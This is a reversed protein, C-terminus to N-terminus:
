KSSSGEIESLIKGFVGYLENFEAVQKSTYLFMIDSNGSLLHKQLRYCERMRRKLMNRKVARKFNKKPVCVMIRSFGCGNDKRVCYRIMGLHSYKGEALLTRIDKKCHIREEKSLKDRQQLADM